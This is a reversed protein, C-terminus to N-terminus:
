ISRVEKINTMSFFDLWRSFYKKYSGRMGVRDKKVGEFLLDALLVLFNIKDPRLDLVEGFM